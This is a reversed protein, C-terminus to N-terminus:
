SNKTSSKYIEVAKKSALRAVDKNNQYIEPYAELGLPQPYKISGVEFTMGLRETFLVFWDKYGGASDESKLLPYGTLEAFEKAIDPYNYSGDFGWYIVDGRTHYSITLMFSNNVTVNRMARTEPESFPYPGIYNASSPYTINQAGEGWLANFNVNIDVGRINAKWLSFDANGNNYAILESHRSQPINKLGNIALEVGDPNILPAFWVEAEGVYEELLQTMLPVTIYERAHMAGQILVKINPNRGKLYAYINNGLVSKGIIVTSKAANNCRMLYNNMTEMCIYYTYSDVYAVKM